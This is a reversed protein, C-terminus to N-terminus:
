GKIELATERALKRINETVKVFPQEADIRTVDHSLYGNRVFTLLAKNSEYLDNDGHQGTRQMSTEASIDLLITKYPKPLRSVLAKDFEALSEKETKTLDMSERFYSAYVEQSLSFRDLVLVDLGKSELTKFWELQAYKDASMICQIAEHPVKYEGYLYKRILGGTPTDYRHFESHKVKLGQKSLEETFINSMSNKGSKDLGEFVIIKM